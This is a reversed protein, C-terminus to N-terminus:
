IKNIAPSGVIVSNDLFSNLVLSNAGVVSYNAIYIGGIIIAGPYITVNNGLTPSVGNKNGLTCNHHFTCNSGIISRAGIVSGM